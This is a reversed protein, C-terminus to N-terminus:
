SGAQSGPAAGIGEAATAPAGQDGVVSPVDEPTRTAAPAASGDIGADVRSCDHEDGAAVVGEEAAALPAQHAGSATQLMLRRLVADTGETKREAKGERGKGERGRGERGKGERETVSGEGERGKGERVNGKGKKEKRQRREGNCRGRLHFAPRKEHRAPKMSTPSVSSSLTARSTWSSVATFTSISDTFYWEECGHGNGLDRMTPKVPQHRERWGGEGKGRGGGGTQWRRKKEQRDSLKEIAGWTCGM